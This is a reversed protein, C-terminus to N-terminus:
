AGSQEPEIINTAQQDKHKERWYKDIRAILLVILGIVLLFLAIYINSSGRIDELFVKISTVIIVASGMFRFPLQNAYAGWAFLALAYVMWSISLFINVSVFELQYADWTNQIQITLLGGVVSHSALALALAVWDNRNDYPFTCKKDGKDRFYDSFVFGTIALGIWVLAGPNIFPIFELGFWRVWEVDWAVVYWYFFTFTWAAIALYRAFSVKTFRGATFIIVTLFLWISVNIVHHMGKEHFNTALESGSISILIVGLLFYFITPIATIGAKKQIFASSIIFLIGVLLTPLAYPVTFSNLIFISWFVFNIANILNMWLNLGEFKEKEYYGAIMLGAFYVVFFVSIYFMPKQWSMPEFYVYYTIYIAMTVLFSMLRLEPWKKVASLYLGFANLILVYLFLVFIQEEPAKLVIPTVLGGLLAIFSLKRMEQTYGIYAILGTFSLMAIIIANVSWNIEVSFGAYAFTAYVVASGLGALLETSLNARVKYKVYGYYILTTGALLGIAVRAAPPLWGESIILNFFYLMASFLFLGGLMNIWNKKIFENM